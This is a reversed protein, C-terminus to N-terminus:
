KTPRPPVRPAYTRSFENRPTTITFTGDPYAAVKLWYAPTHGTANGRGRGGGAPAAPAQGQPAAGTAAPTPANAAAPAPPAPAAAGRGPGAGRPPATLVGAITAADDVNAIYLAPSNQELMANYSWHMQWLNELGPSSLITQMPEPAGGKRTGNQMIAVRPQIAHVFPLSGSAIAGHSSAFYLDVTGIPNNPCMLELEKTRWMDGFDLARFQGLIIVSGVSQADDPDNLGTNGAIPTFGACYPNPKGGGPLPPSKLVQGASTVIRWDLGTIPVRDGPKVVLHKAKGYLEAYMAQFNEIQERAKTVPIGDPGPAVQPVDPGETTPGHDVFTGVPIRKALEVLNGIHDVHYHTSILYDIQKIGADAIAAMIRDLDRAGPFGTDIMATQGTPSVYLAAKGGEVDVVWIELPKPKQGQAGILVATIVVIGLALAFRKM